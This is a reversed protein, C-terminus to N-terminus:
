CCCCCSIGACFWCWGGMCCCCRCSSMGGCCCCCCCCAWGCRANIGGGGGLIWNGCCWICCFWVWGGCFLCGFENASPFPPPLPDARESQTTTILGPSPMINLGPSTCWSGSRGVVESPVGMKWAFPTSMVGESPIM